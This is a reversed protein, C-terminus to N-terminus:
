NIVLSELYVEGNEIHKQRKEHPMKDFMRVLMGLRPNSLFFDRHTDMFRWFLGDWTAQWEGKKYNSMKMLYNSGSIYPKTAMLGGDAYQSMGYINTVMVWDYADIFLEMFWRYVEDPDFECLMMFNGLVMLREIHHCYGTQLVKKITQDIPPIGTTGDYFSAPIKKKFKWFNTTREESGRSEYVGRIFERWGIIQRVFGETSNIPVDNEEAYILCADIVEKPTILGVNLMPTLVSHNLISNEAVIADEYVGFDMFRQDFFQQLWSKTTEFNTPYLAYDTLTGLHNSFHTEVYQKAETYYNDLDPFQISPPTKKAPYKKRNEADFTWKGGKPKGDPELLINRKKRQETYFSTQHYKKKDKRFFGVLEEKSNLFLPSDYVETSIDNELCGKAIRKQLWNDTPDIYNIHTVGQNKLEPLLKRIDSFEDTAEVYHVTLEKEERLFDAYRKMTARHFAIKQKHFPYQKFFLYEEVLYVPANNAFLPSAEFLQHPFIINIRKM